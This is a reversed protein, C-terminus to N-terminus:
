SMYMKGYDAKSLWVGGKPIKEALGRNFAMAELLHSPLCVM